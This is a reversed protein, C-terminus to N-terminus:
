LRSDARGTLKFKHVVAGTAYKRLWIERALTLHTLKSDDSKIAFSLSHPANLLQIYSIDYAEHLIAVLTGDSDHLELVYGLRTPAPSTAVVALAGFDEISAIGSPSIPGAAILTGFAEASPIGTVSIPGVVVVVGFAEASAIGTVIIAGSCVPAGFEEDTLITFPYVTFNLQTTGFAEASAIGSVHIGVFVIPTGFAELSAIASPEVKLNVKLTGFVEGSAIGGAGSIDAM